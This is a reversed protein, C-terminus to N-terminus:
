LFKVFFYNLAKIRECAVLLEATAAISQPFHKTVTLRMTNFYAMTVFVAEASLKGGIYVYTVFCAFLIIRSAVFYFALNIAKLLCSQRIRVV